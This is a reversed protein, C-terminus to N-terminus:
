PQAPKSFNIISTDREIKKNYYSQMFDDEPKYDITITHQNATIVFEEYFHNITWLDRIELLREFANSLDSNKDENFRYKLSKIDPYKAFYCSFIIM